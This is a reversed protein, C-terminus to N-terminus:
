TIAVYASQPKALGAEMPMWNAARLEIAGVLLLSTAETTRLAKTDPDMAQKRVAQM